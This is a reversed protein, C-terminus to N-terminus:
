PLSLAALVLVWIVFTVYDIDQTDENANNVVACGQRVSLVLQQIPTNRATVVVPMLRQPFFFNMQHMNVAVVVSCAGTGLYRFDCM